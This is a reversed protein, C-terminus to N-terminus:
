RWVDIVVDDLYTPEGDMENHWVYVTLQDTPQLDAPLSVIQEIREWKQFRRVVQNLPLGQWVDERRQNCRVTSVLMTSRIRGSPLWAWGRVRLRRPIGGGPLLAALANTYVGTFEAGTNVSLVNAGTHAHFGPMPPPPGVATATADPQEFGLEAVRM